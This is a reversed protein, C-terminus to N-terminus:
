KKNIRANAIVIIDGSNLTVTESNLNYKGAYPYDNFYSNEYVYYSATDKYENSSPKLKNFIHYLFEIFPIEYSSKIYLLHNEKKDM